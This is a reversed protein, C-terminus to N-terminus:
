RLKCQELKVELSEYEITLERFFNFDKQSVKGNKLVTVLKQNNSILDNLQEQYSQDYKDDKSLHTLRVGIEFNNKEDEYWKNNLRLFGLEVMSKLLAIRADEEKRFTGVMITGYNGRMEGRSTDICPNVYSIYANFVHTIGDTMKLKPNIFQDIKQTQLFDFIMKIKDIKLNSVSM